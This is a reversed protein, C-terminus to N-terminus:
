TNIEANSVRAHTEMSYQTNLIRSVAVALSSCMIDAQPTTGATQFSRILVTRCGARRGADVDSEADGIVWSASLDLGHDKAAEVLMGPSPKRCACHDGLGHPCVYIDTIIAGHLAFAERMHLHIEEVDAVLMKGLAIGRQNTVIIVKFGAQNLAAVSAFVGKLFRIEGWRTVYEGEPAKRNIVGDRDLFVAKTSITKEVPM